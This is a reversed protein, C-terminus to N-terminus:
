KNQSSFFVYIICKVDITFNGLLYKKKMLYFIINAYRKKEVLLRILFLCVRM